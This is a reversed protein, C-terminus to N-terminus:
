DPRTEGSHDKQREEHVQKQQVRMQARERWTIAAEAHKPDKKIIKEFDEIAAEFKGQHYLCQGHGDLAENSQPNRKLLAEFDTLARDYHRNALSLNARETVAHMDDKSEKIAKSLKDYKDEYQSDEEASLPEGGSYKAALKLDQEAEKTKGQAKYCQARMKYALGFGPESKILATADATAKPLNKMEIECSIIQAQAEKKCEALLSKISNVPHGKAQIAVIENYDAIAEKYKGRGEQMRGRSLLSLVLTATRETDNGCLSVARTFSKLADDKNGKELQYLGLHYAVGALSHKKDVGKLADIAFDLHGGRKQAAALDLVKAEEARYDLKPSLKSFKEMDQGAELLKGSKRYATARNFYPKPSNPNLKIVTTYDAIAAATEGSLAECFARRDYADSTKANLKIAKDCDARASKLDKKEIFVAAREAFFRANKQAKGEVAHLVDFAKASDGQLRYVYSKVIAQDVTDEACASQFANIQIGGSLLLAAASVILKRNM